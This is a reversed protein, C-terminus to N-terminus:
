FSGTVFKKFAEATTIGLGAKKAWDMFEEKTKPVFGTTGKTDAKAKSVLNERASYMDKMDSFAKQSETGLGSETDHILDNLISRNQLWMQKQWQLQPSSAESANKVNNAISSDYNKRAEWVDNLSPNPTAELDKLYAEFKVQSKGSGPFADYEPETEQDKKVQEWTKRVSSQTEKSVPVKEMEPKLDESIKTTKDSLANYLEADDMKAANPIHNQITQSAKVVQDSPSITDPKKGFITSEEGRTLRGEKMAVKSEKLLPRPSITEQIKGLDTLEPGVVAEKASKATGAVKGPLENATDIVKGAATDAADLAKTGATKLDSAVSKLAGTPSEIPDEAGGLGFMASKITGELYSAKDPNAKAWEDYKGQAGSLADLAAGVGKTQALEQVKPNEAIKDTIAKITSTVPAFITDVAHGALDFGRVIPNRTTDTIDHKMADVNPQITKAFNDGASRVIDSAGGVVDKVLGGVTPKPVPEPQDLGLAAKRQAIIDNAGSSPQTPPTLTNLPPLGAQARFQNAAELTIAM